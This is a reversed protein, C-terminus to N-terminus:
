PPLPVTLWVPCHDSVGGTYRPGTYTRLPKTGGHTADPVQLFPVYLISMRASSLAPSVYFMDILNWAGDFKITGRGREFLEVARPVFSPELLKYVPNAPTDNFDGTAIIRNEGLATLSDALFRLREVALRRRPESVTTGGYKSPHHNVLVSFPGFRGSFRCLLIDRTAMVTDAQFLHCPRADELKLRSSRYLLAVDIGRSDPSDFHVYKYDLKRLATEQLLRRLVFANEVEAFGIVDPLGGEASGAWLIGKAIANCKANFRKRTWRREGFSSFEADSVSTSDNRYDFFNELNWFMVRLTDEQPQLLALLCVLVMKGM